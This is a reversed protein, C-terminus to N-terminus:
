NNFNQVIYQIKGYVSPSDLSPKYFEEKFRSFLIGPCNSYIFNGSMDPKPIRYRGFKSEEEEEMNRAQEIFFAWAEPYLESNKKM